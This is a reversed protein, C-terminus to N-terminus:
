TGLECPFVIQTYYHLLAMCVYIDWYTTGIVQKIVASLLNICLGKEIRFQSKECWDSEISRGFRPKVAIIICEDIVVGLVVVVGVEFIEVVLECCNGALM